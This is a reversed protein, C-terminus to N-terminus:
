ESYPWDELWQIVLGKSVTHGTRWDSYSWDELWQIVLGETVTHGTRWDSYPWDKLWQTVLGETVTHGTRWDSHSWDKLWQTVLGETVTYGTRWDSYHWDTRQQLQRHWVRQKCHRFLFHRFHQICVHLLKKCLDLDTHINYRCKTMKRNFYIKYISIYKNVQIHLSDHSTAPSPLPGHSAPWWASRCGRWAGQRWCCPSGWKWCMMLKEWQNFFM